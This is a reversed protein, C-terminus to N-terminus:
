SKKLNKRYRKFDRVSWTELATDPVSNKRLSEYKGHIDDIAEKFKRAADDPNCIMMNEEDWFGNSLYIREVMIANSLFAKKTKVLENYEEMPIVLMKEDKM